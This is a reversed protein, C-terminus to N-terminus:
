GLLDPHLIDELRAVELPWDDPILSRFAETEFWREDGSYTPVVLRPFRQLIERDSVTRLRELDRRRQDTAEIGEFYGHAARLQMLLHGDDIRPQGAARGLLIRAAAHRLVELPGQSRLRRMWRSGADTPEITSGFPDAVHVSWDPRSRAYDVMRHLFTAYVAGGLAQRHDGDACSHFIRLANREFLVGRRFDGMVSSTASGRHRAVADPAAIVERGMARLRWGFEVDEFYAFLEPDFGGTSDWDRRRVAMNGGCAFPLPEGTEPPDVQDVPLGQGIQFAHVDFTVRGRLFDHRSRDWSVLRGGTAAAEPHAHLTELHWEVLGPEASADDNLFVLVDGEAVEAGLRVGGTFGLNRESQVTRVWPYERRAVEACGDASGNDVLIVEVDSHGAYPALSALGDGLRAVGAHTVVIVSAKM